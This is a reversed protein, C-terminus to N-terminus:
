AAVYDDQDIVLLLTCGEDSVVAGHHSGADAHHFDGQALAVTGIRCSGSVVYCEEAGSHDHPPCVAGPQFRMLITAIGRTEDRSLLKVDIGPIQSCWRGEGARVTRSAALSRVIELLQQKAAAPPAVPDLWDAATLEDLLTLDETTLADSM